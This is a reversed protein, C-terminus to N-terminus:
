LNEDVEIFFKEITTNINQKLFKDSIAILDDKLEPSFFMQWAELVSAERKEATTKIEKFVLKSITKDERTLDNQVEKAVNKGKKGPKVKSKLVLSFSSTTFDSIQEVRYSNDSVRDINFCILGESSPITSGEGYEAEDIRPLFGSLSNIIYYKCAITKEDYKIGWPNRTLYQEPWAEVNEEGFRNKSEAFVKDNISAIYEDSVQGIIKAYITRANKESGVQVPIKVLDHLSYDGNMVYDKASATDLTELLVPNVYVSYYIKGTIKTIYVKSSSQSFSNGFFVLILAAVLLSKVIRM